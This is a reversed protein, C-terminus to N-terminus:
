AAHRNRRIRTPRPQLGSAPPAHLHIRNVFATASAPMAISRAPESFAVDSLSWILSPFYVVGAQECEASDDTGHGLVRCLCLTSRMGKEGGLKSVGVDAAVM